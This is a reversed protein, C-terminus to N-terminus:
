NKKKKGARQILFNSVVTHHNRTSNRIAKHSICLLTKPFIFICHLPCSKSFLRQENMFIREKSRFNSRWLEWHQLSLSQKVITKLLLKRNKKKFLFITFCKQCDSITKQKQKKNNSFMINKSFM